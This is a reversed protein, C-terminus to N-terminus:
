SRHEMNWMTYNCKQRIKQPFLIYIYIIIERVAALATKMPPKTPIALLNELSYMAATTLPCARPPIIAAMAWIIDRANLIDGRCLASIYKMIASM